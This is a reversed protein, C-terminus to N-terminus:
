LTTKRGGKWHIETDVAPKSGGLDIRCHESVRWHPEENPVEQHEAIAKIKGLNADSQTVNMVEWGTKNDPDKDQTAAYSAAEWSPSLEMLKGM